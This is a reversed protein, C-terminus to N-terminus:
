VIMIQLNHLTGRRMGETGGFYELIDNRKRILQATGGWNEM